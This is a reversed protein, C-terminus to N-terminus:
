NGELFELRYWREFDFGNSRSLVSWSGFLIVLGGGFVFWVDFSKKEFKREFWYFNIGSIEWIECEWFGRGVGMCWGIGVEKGISRKICFDKERGNIEYFRYMSWFGVFIGWGKWDM